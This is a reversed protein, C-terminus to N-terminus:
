GKSAPAIDMFGVFDIKPSHAM